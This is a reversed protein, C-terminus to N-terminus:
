PRGGLAAVISATIIGTTMFTAVAVLSPMELFALGCVGHGSTCGNALRAGFGAILGGLALQLAPVATHFAPGGSYWLYAAGGLVVGVAHTLRWGRNDTFRAQGFYKAQSLYSWTSSFVASLGGIRGTLVYLLAMGAGLLLGGALYHSIGHPFWQVFM